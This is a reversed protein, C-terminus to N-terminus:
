SGPMGAAIKEAVMITPLFTNGSPVEPMVSADAVHLGQLGRVAGDPTVVASPDDPAGMRCTSTHHALGSVNRLVYDRLRDPTTALSELELPGAILRSFLAPALFPAIDLGTAAVRTAIANWRSRVNLRRLRDARSVPFAFRLLPKIEPANLLQVASKFGDVMRELDAPDGLLNFEILSVLHGDRPSLTITGRAVPKHLITSMGMVRLGLAHWASRNQIVTMMDLPMDTIGSSSRFGVNNHNLNTRSAHGARNLLAGVYLAAHNQLGQGVGPLDAQVDVGVDRLHSAPGIGSRLLLAPSQLAGATVIVNRGRYDKAGAPGRAAVGTVRRGDFLLREVSTDTVISLNPRARVERTLYCTVSSSRAVANAAVPITFSGDRFDANADDVHQLGSRLALDRSARALPPWSAQPNRTIAVPGDNGHLPGGFDHDSELKRFYPLVDAWGWGTAGAREWRDYDHPVGRLAIMGMISSSGGLVRGQEIFGEPSTGATRWHGKITTWKYDPNYYSLPYPSLIDAPEEGAVVDRGAEILLVRNTPRRSLRNALVCGAAGGGVIITDFEVLDAERELLCV